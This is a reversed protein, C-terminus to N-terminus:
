KLALPQHKQLWGETEDRIREAWGIAEAVIAETVFPAADYRSANRAQVMAPVAQAAQGKLALEKALFELAAKHHGHGSIEMKRCELVLLACSLGCDYAADFRRPASVYQAPARADSLCVAANRWLNRVKDIQMLRIPKMDAM